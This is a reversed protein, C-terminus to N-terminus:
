MYFKHCTDQENRSLLFNNLLKKQKLQEIFNYGPQLSCKGPSEVKVFQEEM